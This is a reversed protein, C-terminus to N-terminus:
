IIEWFSRGQQAQQPEQEQEGNAAGEVAGEAEAAGEVADGTEMEQGDDSEEDPAEASRDSNKKKKKNYWKQQYLRGMERKKALKKAAEPDHVADKRLKEMKTRNALKSTERTKAKQDDTLPKRQRGFIARKQQVTLAIECPIM